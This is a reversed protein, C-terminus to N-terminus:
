TKEYIAKLFSIGQNSPFSASLTETRSPFPGITFIEWKLNIYAILLQSIIDISLKKISLKAILTIILQSYNCM